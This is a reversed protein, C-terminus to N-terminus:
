WYIPIDKISKKTELLEAELEKIREDKRQEALDKERQESYHSM